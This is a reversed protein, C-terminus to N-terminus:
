ETHKSKDQLLVDQEEDTFYLLVAKKFEPCNADEAAYYLIMKDRLNNQDYIKFLFTLIAQVTSPTEGDKTFVMLLTKLALMAQHNERICQPSKWQM